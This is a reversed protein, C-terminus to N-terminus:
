AHCKEPAVLCSSVHCRGKGYRALVVASGELTQKVFQASQRADAWLGSLADGVIQQLGIHLPGSPKCRGDQVHLLLHVKARDAEAIGRTVRAVDAGIGRTVARRNTDYRLRAIDSGHFTRSAMTPEIVDKATNYRRHILNAGFLKM